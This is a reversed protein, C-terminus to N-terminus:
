EQANIYRYGANHGYFFQKKNEDFFLAPRIVWDEEFSIQGIQEARINLSILNNNVYQWPNFRDKKNRVTEASQIMFLGNDSFDAAVIVQEEKELAYEGSKKLLNLDVIELRSKDIFLVYSSQRDFLLRRTRVNSEFIIKGTDDLVITNFQIPSGQKYISAAYYKKNASIAIARINWDTFKKEFKIKNELTRLILTTGKSTQVGSFLLDFDLSITNYFTPEGSYKFDDLIKFRKTEKGDADFLRIRNAADISLVRKTGPEVFYDPFRTDYQWRDETKVILKKEASFWEIEILQNNGTSLQKILGYVDHEVHLVNLIADDQIDLSTLARGEKSWSLVNAKSQVSDGVSIKGSCSFLLVEITLFVSIFFLGKKM